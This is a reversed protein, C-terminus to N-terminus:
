PTRGSRLAFWAAVAPRTLLIATAVGAVTVLLLVPAAIGMMLTLLATLVSSGILVFRAWNRGLFALVAVATAALSWLGFTLALGLSLSRIQDASLGSDAFRDDSSYVDDILTPDAAFSVLVLGMAAVVLGSFVWTIVCAQVVERPRATVFPVDTRHQQASPLTAGSPHRPGDLLTGPQGGSQSQSGTAGGGESGFGQYASPTSPPPPGSADPSSHDQHATPDPVRAPSRGDFWDRAQRTWLLVVAVAVMSSMFGGTVLGTVFLPVALVSLWLRAQRNRRLVYWGLIAAATACGAAVMALVHMVSLVQQLDIGLGDLPPESIAQQVRERTDISRLNAVLDFVTLVVAASGLITVWGAMTVQPPRASASETM